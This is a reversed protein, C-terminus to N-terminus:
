PSVARHLKNESPSISPAVLALCTSRLTPLVQGSLKRNPKPVEPKKKQYTLPPNKNDEFTNQM